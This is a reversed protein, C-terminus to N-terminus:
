REVGFSFYEAHRKFSADRDTLFSRKTGRGRASIEDANAAPIVSLWTLAERKVSSTAFSSVLLRSM